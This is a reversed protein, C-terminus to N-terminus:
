RPREHIRWWGGYRTSSARARTWPQPLPTQQFMQAMRRRMWPASRRALTRPARRCAGSRPSASSRRGWPPPGDSVDHRQALQHPTHEIDIRVKVRSMLLFERALGDPTPLEGELQKLLQPSVRYATGRHGWPLQAVLQQVIAQDPWAEAFARMYKLNRPSLGTM